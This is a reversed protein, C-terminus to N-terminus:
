VSNQVFIHKSISTQKVINLEIMGWWRVTNEEENHLTKKEENNTNFASHWSQKNFTVQSSRVDGDSRGGSPCSDKEQCILSPTPITVCDMRAGELNVCLSHPQAVRSPARTVGLVVRVSLCVSLGGHCLVTSTTRWGSVSESCDRETTSEAVRPWPPVQRWNPLVINKVDFMAPVQVFPRKKLCPPKYTNYLSNKEDIINHAQKRIYVHASTM